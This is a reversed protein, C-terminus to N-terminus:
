EQFVLEPLKGEPRVILAAPTIEPVGSAVPVEVHPTCTVSEARCIAMAWNLMVMLGATSPM